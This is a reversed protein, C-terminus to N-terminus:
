QAFLVERLLGAVHFVVEGGQAFPAMGVLALEPTHNGSYRLM